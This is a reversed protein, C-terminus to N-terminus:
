ENAAGKRLLACGLGTNFGIGNVLVHAGDPLSADELALCLDLLNNATGTYGTRAKYSRLQAAPFHRKVAALENQALHEAGNDYLVVTLAAGAPLCGDSFLGAYLADWHAPDPIGPFYHTKVKLVEGFVPRDARPPLNSLFLSVSAFSPTFGGTGASRLLSMKQFSALSDVSLMDGTANLFASGPSYRIDHVASMLALMGGLSAGQLPYGGGSFSHLSSMHYVLNTSLKRLMDLPNATQKVDALRSYFLDADGGVRAYHQELQEFGNELADNSVFVGCAGREAADPAGAAGLRGMCEVSSDVALETIFNLLNRNERGIAAKNKLRPKPVEFHAEFSPYGARLYEAPTENLRYGYGCIKVGGTM